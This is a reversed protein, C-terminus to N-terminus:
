RVAEPSTWTVRLDPRNARAQQERRAERDFAIRIADEESLSRNQGHNTLADYTDNLQSARGATADLCETSLEQTARTVAEEAVSDPGTSIFTRGLLAAARARVAEEAEAYVRETIERHGEEHVVVKRRVREPLWITVRLDLRVDLSRITAACRAPERGGRRRPTTTTVDYNASAACSFSSQALAVERGKLPPMDAPPNRPDFTRREVVVPAREVRVEQASAAAPPVCLALLLCSLIRHPLPM